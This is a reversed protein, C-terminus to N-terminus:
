TVRSACSGTMALTIAGGSAKHIQTAASHAGCSRCLQSLCAAPLRRTLLRNQLSASSSSSGAARRQQQQQKDLSFTSAPGRRGRVAPRGHRQGDQRGVVAPWKLVSRCSRAEGPAGEAAQCGAIGGAQQGPEGERSKAAAPSQQQHISNVSPSLSLSMRSSQMRTKCDQLSHLPPALQDNGAYPM